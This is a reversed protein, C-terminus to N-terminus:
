YFKAILRLRHSDKESRVWLVIIRDHYANSCADILAVGIREYEKEEEWLMEKMDRSYTQILYKEM